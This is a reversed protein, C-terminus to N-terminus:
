LENLFSTIYRNKKLRLVFDIIKILKIIFVIFLYISIIGITYGYVAWALNVSNRLYYEALVLILLIPVLIQRSYVLGEFPYVGFLRAFINQQSWSRDKGIKSELETQANKLEKKLTIKREIIGERFYSRTLEGIAYELTFILGLFVGFTIYIKDNYLFNLGVGLGAGLLVPEIFHGLSDFFEGEKNKNMPDMAKPNQIRAVEGDSCDLIKYLIFFLLGIFISFYTGMSLFTYGVLNPFFNLISIASPSIGLKVFIYTFPTSFNRYIHYISTKSKLDVAQKAKIEKYNIGM